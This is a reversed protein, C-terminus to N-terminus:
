KPPKELNSKQTKEISTNKRTNPFSFFWCDAQNLCSSGFWKRLTQLHPLSFRQTSFFIRPSFYYHVVSWRMNELKCFVLRCFTGLFFVILLRLVYCWIIYSNTIRVKCSGSVKHSKYLKAYNASCLNVSKVQFSLERCNDYSFWAEILM